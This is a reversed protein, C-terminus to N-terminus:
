KGNSPVNKKKVWSEVREDRMQMSIPHYRYIRLRPHSLKINTWRRFEAPNFSVFSVSLVCGCIILASNKDNKILLSQFINFLLTKSSHIQSWWSIEQWNLISSLNIHNKKHLTTIFSRKVIATNWNKDYRINLIVNLYLIGGNKVYSFNKTFNVFWFSELIFHHLVNWCSFYEM